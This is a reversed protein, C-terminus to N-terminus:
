RRVLKRLQDVSIREVPAAARPPLPPTPEEALEPLVFRVGVMSGARWVIEVRQEIKKSPVSLLFQNAIRSGYPLELRAGSRSLDALEDTVYLDDDIIRARADSCIREPLRRDVPKKMRRLM